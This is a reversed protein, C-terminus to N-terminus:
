QASVTVWLRGAQLLCPGSGSGCPTLSMGLGEPKEEQCELGKLHQLTDGGEAAQQFTAEHWLRRKWSTCSHEGQTMSGVAEKTQSGTPRLHQGRRGALGRDGAKQNLASGEQERGSRARLRACPTHGPSTQYHISSGVGLRHPVLRSAGHIGQGCSQGCTKM